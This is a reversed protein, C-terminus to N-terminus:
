HRRENYDVIGIAILLVSLRLSIEGLLKPYRYIAELKGSALDERMCVSLMIVCIATVTLGLVLTWYSPRYMTAIYQKIKKM